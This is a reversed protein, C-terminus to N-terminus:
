AQRRLLDMQFFRDQAHLFGLARVADLRSGARITPVGLDDREISVPAALGAVRQQGDLQPLLSAEMRHHLWVRGALVALVLFGLMFALVRLTHRLRSRRPTLAM